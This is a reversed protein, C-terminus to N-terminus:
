HPGPGLLASAEAILRESIVESNVRFQGTRIAEKIAEVKESDFDTPMGAASLQSGAASLAVRDVSTSADTTHIGRAPRQICSEHGASSIDLPLGIKM